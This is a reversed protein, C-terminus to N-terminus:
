DSDEDADGSEDDSEEEAQQMAVVFVKSKEWLAKLENAVDEDVVDAGRTRKATFWDVIQDAEVADSQWIAKLFYNFYPKHEPHLVTYEQNFPVHLNM